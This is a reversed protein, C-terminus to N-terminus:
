NGRPIQFSVRGEYPTRKKRAKTATNVTKTAPKQLTGQLLLPPM